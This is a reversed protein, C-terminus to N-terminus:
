PHFRPPTALKLSRFLCVAHNFWQWLHVSATSSFTASKITEPPQRRPSRSVLWPDQRVVSWTHPLPATTPDFEAICGSSSLRCYLVFALCTRLNVISANFERDRERDGESSAKFAHRRINLPYRRVHTPPSLAESGADAHDDTYLAVAFKNRCVGILSINPAEHQTCRM